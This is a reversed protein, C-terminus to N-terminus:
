NCHLDSSIVPRMAQTWHEFSTKPIAPHPKLDILFQYLAKAEDTLDFLNLSRLIRSLRLFNHNPKALWNKARNEFNLGKQVTLTKEQYELGYFELMKLFSLQVNKKILPNQSFIKFQAVTFVPGKRNYNSTQDTPFLWQIYNHRSEKENFNMNQIQLLTRKEDDLGENQYFKEFIEKNLPQLLLKQPQVTKQQTPQSHLPLTLPTTPNVAPETPNLKNQTSPLLSSRHNQKQPRRKFRTFQPVPTTKSEITASQLDRSPAESIAVKKILDNTIEVRAIELTKPSSQSAPSEQIEDDIAADFVEDDLLDLAAKDAESKKRDKIMEKKIEEKKFTKLEPSQNKKPQPISATFSSSSPIKKVAQEENPNPNIKREKLKNWIQYIAYSGIALGLAAFIIVIFSYSSKSPTLLRWVRWEQNLTPSFANIYHM